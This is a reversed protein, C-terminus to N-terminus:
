KKELRMKTTLEYKKLNGRCNEVIHDLEHRLRLMEDYIDQTAEGKIASTRMGNYKELYIPKGIIVYNRRFVRPPRYQVMPIIPSGTKLAFVVAGDKFKLMEKSGSKNRTGEPFLLLPEGKKLVGLIKKVAEVDAEGREIPIGGIETLFKAGFKSKFAEEKIVVNFNNKFIKAVMANTDLASYHNCVYVVNKDLILNETGYFTTPWLLKLAPSIIARLFKYNM